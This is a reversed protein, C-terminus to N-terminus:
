HGPPYHFSLSKYYELTHAPPAYGAPLPLHNLSQWYAISADRWWQAEHQQVALFAATQAYRQADVRGDLLKWTARMQKVEDVGHSYHMVLADWLTHGSRM